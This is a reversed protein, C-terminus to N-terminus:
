GYLDATRKIPSMPLCILGLHSAALHPTEDPAIRNGVHNEDFFSIFFSVNSRIVRFPFTFEALHYRHSLGNTVLSNM